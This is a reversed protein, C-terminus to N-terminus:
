QQPYQRVRSGSIKTRTQFQRVGEFQALFQRDMRAPPAQLVERGRDSISYRGRAVRVLLGARQLYVIAWYVRNSFRTQQGSPLLEEREDPTLRFEDALKDIAERTQVEGTATLKLFPLTIAQFDPVPM